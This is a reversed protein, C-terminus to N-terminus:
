ENQFPQYCNLLKSESFNKNKDRAGFTKIETQPPHGSANCLAWCCHTPISASAGLFGWMGIIFGFVSSCLRVVDSFWVELYSFFEFFPFLRQDSHLVEVRCGEIYHEAQNLVAKESRDNAFALFAFAKGEHKTEKKLDLSVLDGFNGFYKRVASEPISRLLGGVFLRPRTAVRKMANGKFEENVNNNMARGGVNAPSNQQATAVVAM